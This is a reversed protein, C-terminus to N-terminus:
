SMGLSMLSNESIIGSLIANGMGMMKGILRGGNMNLMLDGVGMSMVQPNTVCSDKLDIRGSGAKELHLNIYASNSGRLDFAGTCKIAFEEDYFSDFFVTSGGYLELVQLKKLSVKAKVRDKSKFGFLGFHKKLELECTHDVLNYRINNEEKESCDVLLEEKYDRVFLLDWRGSIKLKSINTFNVHLM